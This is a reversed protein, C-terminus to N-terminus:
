TMLMGNPNFGNLWSLPLKQLISTAFLVTQKLHSLHIHVLHTLTALLSPYQCVTGM